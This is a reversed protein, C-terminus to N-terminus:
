RSLKTVPDPVREGHDLRERHLGVTPRLRDFRESLCKDAPQLRQRARV